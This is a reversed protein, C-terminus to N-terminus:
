GLTITNEKKAVDENAFEFEYKFTIEKDKLKVPEEMEEITTFSYWLYHYSNGEDDSTIMIVKDGNGNKIQKECEKMLDKVTLPKM